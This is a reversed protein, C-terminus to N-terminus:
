EARLRAALARQLELINRANQGFDWKGIRSHSRIWVVSKDDERRIRVTVDDKFRFLRTLAIAQLVTGEPGSASGVLTFRPLSEIAERTARAVQAEPAAFRQPKLEAYEPTRGTEVDSVHPWAFAAWAGAVVAILLVVKKLM